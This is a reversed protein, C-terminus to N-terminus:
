RGVDLDDAIQRLIPELDDFGNPLNKVDIDYACVYRRSLTTPPM